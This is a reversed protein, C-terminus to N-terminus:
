LCQPLIHLYKITKGNKGFREIFVSHFILIMQRAASLWCRARPCRLIWRFGASEHTYYQRATHGHSSPPTVQFSTSSCLGVVAIAPAELSGVSVYPSLSHLTLSPPLTWPGFRKQAVPRPKRPKMNRPGHSLRRLRHMVETAVGDPFCNTDPVLAGVPGPQPEM